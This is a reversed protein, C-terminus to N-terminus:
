PEHGDVVRVMSESVDLATEYGRADPQLLARTAPRTTSRARAARPRAAHPARGRGRGRGPGRRAGIPGKRKEKVLQEPDLEPVPPDPLADTATASM